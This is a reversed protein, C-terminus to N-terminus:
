ARLEAGFDRKLREVIRGRQKAVEADGLTRDAAQYSVAFALSKRGVPVPEGTYVDFIRASAVLPFSQIAGIVDGARVDGSVIVALDEEVAPYQSVPKHHVGEPVHPLLAAIDLEFMAAPQGIDFESLVRPHVEGISGVRDEGLRIEATRGPLFAFDVSDRYDASVGLAGLVYALVMKADYFGAQEGTPSGWRGSARGSVVACLTEREEPLDGERPLYVRAVEFLGIREQSGRMNHALTQLLAHRLTTRAFEFQRSLPNSLRLPPNLAMEEPGLVRTLGEMDTMSYTIIEQLGADAAADRVRERLSREPQPVFDPIEGALRSTPLQDYGYIRAIEEIVDDAIMVDTRWYPPKVIFRDPPLWRCTFGLSSLIRRVEGNPVELGIVKVLREMTVTIRRDKEVGPFVDIIGQAPKGGCIEAMLHIARAAAIAPLQRSLGKEFRTSADTRLKLAQSTRRISPGLFNAAELFVTTTEASVESEGGGMVGAVATPGEGDCILLMNETLDHRSGDILTIKEGARARRVIIQKGRVKEYDFAHLPQGMELMVYNTIDVVSNIPRMGAATLRDKLWAPSDGVKVGEIVGGIYRFCLDKDAIEVKAMKAASKKGEAYQLTPDRWREGTLAAVERAIGVISLWDPRNATVEVEIITDGIISGLPQGLPAQDPLVLIGEHEDSLGLEKESCIMGTSEVGRIRAAKLVFPEGDHGGILSAGVGAYAVKQGGRLNPAGCVVRPHEGGGIDVTALVLRDANPHPEVKEVHAIVVGAWSGTSVIESVEAGAVTLRRALEATDVTLDVYESLWRLPVRM